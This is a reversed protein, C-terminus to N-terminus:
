LVYILLLRNLLAAGVTGRPNADADPPFPKPTPIQKQPPPFVKPRHQRIIKQCSRSAPHHIAPFLFFSEM